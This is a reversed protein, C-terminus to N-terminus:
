TRLPEEFVEEMAGQIHPYAFWVSAIGFLAGTLSRLWWNSERLGILQTGGDIAMPLLLLVYIKWDLARGNRNWFRYFLGALFVSGYIATDRQCIAAKFGVVENGLFLRQQFFDLDASLGGAELQALSPTLHVHEGLFFYSHDPLQHCAFSYISYIVRASSTFGMAMLLPALLPLLVYLGWISNFITLWHRAIGNVLGDIFRALPPKVHNSPASSSNQM